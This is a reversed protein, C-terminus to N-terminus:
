SILDKGRSDSNLDFVCSCTFYVNLQRTPLLAGSSDLSGGWLLQSVYKGFIVANTDAVDWLTAKIRIVNLYLTQAGEMQIPTAKHSHHFHLETVESALGHFACLMRRTRKSVQFGAVVPGLQKDEM